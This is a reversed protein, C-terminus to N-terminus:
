NTQKQRPLKTNDNNKQLPTKITQRICGMLIESSERHKGLKSLQQRYYKRIADMDIGELSAHIQTRQLPFNLNSTILRQAGSVTTSCLTGM